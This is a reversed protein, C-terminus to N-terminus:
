DLLFRTVTHNRIAHDVLIAQRRSKRSRSASLVLPRRVASLLVVLVLVLVLVLSCGVALLWCGVALLWCRVAVVFWSGRVVFWSGRVVFWSGRVM